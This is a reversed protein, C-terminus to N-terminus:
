SFFSIFRLLGKHYFLYKTCKGVSIPPTESAAYNKSFAFNEPPSVLAAL